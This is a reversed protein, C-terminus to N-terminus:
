MRRDSKQRDNYNLLEVIDSALEVSLEVLFTGSM